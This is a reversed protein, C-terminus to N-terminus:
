PPRSSGPGLGGYWASVLVALFFVMFPSGQLIPWMLLTVVLALLTAGVAIFYGTLSLPPSM